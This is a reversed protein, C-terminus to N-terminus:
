ARYGVGTNEALGACVPGRATDPESCRGEPVLPPHEAEQKANVDGKTLKTPQPFMRRKEIRARNGGLSSRSILAFTRMSMLHCLEEGM